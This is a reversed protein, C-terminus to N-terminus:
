SAATASREPRTRLTNKAAVTKKVPTRKKGARKPNAAKATPVAVVDKADKKAARKTKAWRAKQAAAIKARAGASLARRGKSKASGKLSSFATNKAASIATSAGAPRGPIRKITTDSGALIAKAQQLRSIEADIENLINSTNM